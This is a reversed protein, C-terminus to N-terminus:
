EFFDLIAGKGGRIYYDGVEGINVLIPSPQIFFSEAVFWGGGEVGVIVAEREDFLEDVLGGVKIDFVEEEFGVGALM